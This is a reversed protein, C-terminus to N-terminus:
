LDELLNKAEADRAEDILFDLKGSEADAEIQRDWQEWDLDSFWKRLEAFDTESLDLISQQIEPISSM